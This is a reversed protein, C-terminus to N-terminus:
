SSEDQRALFEKITNELAIHREENRAMRAALGRHNDKLSLLASQMAKINSDLVAINSQLYRQERQDHELDSQFREQEVQVYQLIDNRADNQASITEEDSSSTNFSCRHGQGYWHRSACNSMGSATPVIICCPFPGLGRQCHRCPTRAIKGVTQALFAEANFKTVGIQLNLDRGSWLKSTRIAPERQAPLAVLHRLLETKVYNYKRACPWKLDQAIM